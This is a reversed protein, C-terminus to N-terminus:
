KKDSKRRPKWGFTVITSLILVGLVVTVVVLVVGWSVLM